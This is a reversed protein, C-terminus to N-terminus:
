QEKRRIALLTIDDIQMTGSAYEKLRGQVEDLLDSLRQDTTFLPVLEELEFYEGAPNVTDTLGDTHAFLMEGPEVRVEGVSYKTGVALGVAPGTLTLKEKVGGQEIVVPPLHGGNIYKLVGSNTDLIGFFITCFMNTGGHTEAIYNNTLSIANEIRRAPDITSAYEDNTFFDINSVARILSRFLTMFLAAGLGKDCVDAIVLGIKGDTLEFVDYFDGTVERASKLSAAIEWGKPQPLTEPLFGAQIERGIEFERELAKRYLAEREWLKANEVAISMTNALTKLLRIDTANFAYESEMDKLVIAGHLADGMMIPVYLASKPLGRGSSYVNQYRIAAEEMNEDILLPQPNQILFGMFGKGGVNYPPQTIQEGNEVQFPASLQDTEHDYVLIALDAPQFYEELKEGVLAYISDLDLKQALGEQVSNIIHLETARQETENLLRQTEDFLHANELAVSMSAALTQLLRVDSEDFANERDLNQLSLIGTVQDGVIMPVGLWSKPTITGPITHQGFRAALKAVNTNVLVPQQTQVIQTRFGRIPYRGPAFIHEGREIAYRHEITETQPDYTSIMVVQSDFIDRIKDGVLNYIAQVDLRSALAQQVSNILALEAEREVLEQHIIESEQSLSAQNTMTVNGIIAM